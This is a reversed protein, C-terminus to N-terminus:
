CPLGEGPGFELGDEVHFPSVRCGPCQRHIMWGKKMPLRMVYLPDVWTFGLERAMTVLGTAGSGLYGWMFGNTRLTIGGAGDSFIFNVWETYEGKERDAPVGEIRELKWNPHGKVWQRVWALSRDTVGHLEESLEKV